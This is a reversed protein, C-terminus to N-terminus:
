DVCCIQINRDEFQALTARIQAPHFEPRNLLDLSGSVARLEVAQYGLRQATEAIHPVDWEPCGLTSFALKMLRVQPQIRRNVQDLAGRGDLGLYLLVRKRRTSTLGSTLQELFQARRHLGLLMPRTSRRFSRLRFCRVLLRIVQHVRQPVTEAM